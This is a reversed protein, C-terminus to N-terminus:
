DSAYLVNVNMTVGIYLRFDCRDLRKMRMCIYLPIDSNKPMCNNFIM